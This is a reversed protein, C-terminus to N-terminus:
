TVQLNCNEDCVCIKDGDDVADGSINCKWRIGPFHTKCTNNTICSKKLQFVDDKLMSLEDTMKGMDSNLKTNRATLSAVQSNLDTNEKELFSTKQYTMFAFISVLVLLIALIIVAIVEKKM